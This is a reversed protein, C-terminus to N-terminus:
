DDVARNLRASSACAEITALEKIKSHRSANRVIEKALRHPDTDPQVVDHDPHRPVEAAVGRVGSIDLVLDLDTAICALSAQALQDLMNVADGFDGVAQPTAGPDHQPPDVCASEHGGSRPAAHDPISEPWM